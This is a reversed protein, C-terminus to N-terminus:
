LDHGSVLICKGELPTRSVETPIPKGFLVNHCKDLTAMISINVKGLNLNAGLLFDLTFKSYDTLAALAEIIGAFMEHAEKQEYLSSNAKRLM